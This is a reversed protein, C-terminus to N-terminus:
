MMTLGGSVSLAQGTVFGGDPSALYVVLSAVERPEAARKLPISQLVREWVNRDADQMLGQEFRDTRTPGPCVVNVTVKDRAVERALSKAFANLAGRAAASVAGGLQGVKGSDSSIFIVRGAKREAMQPIVARCCYFVGRVDTEWVQEWVAEDQRMFFGLGGAGIATVLVDIRGLAALAAAVARDVAERSRLDAELALTRRGQAAVQEVVAQARGAGSRYTVAVDAGAAALAVAIAGGIGGSGGAVLAVQGSLPQGAADHM